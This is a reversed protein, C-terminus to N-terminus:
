GMEKWDSCLHPWFPRAKSSSRSFCTRSENLLRLAPRGSGLSGASPSLPYAELVGSVLPAVMEENEWSVTGWLVQDSDKSVKKINFIKIKINVINNEKAARSRLQLVPDEVKLQPMQVRIKPM